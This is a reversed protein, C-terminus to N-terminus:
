TVDIIEIITTKIIDEYKGEVTKVVIRDSLTNNYELMTGVVFLEEGTQWHRYTVKVM